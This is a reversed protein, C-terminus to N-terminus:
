GGMMLFIKKYSSINSMNTWSTGNYYLVDGEAPSALSVDSLDDISQGTGVESGNYWLKGNKGYLVNTTKPPDLSQSSFTIGENFNPSELGVKIGNPFVVSIVDGTIGNKIVYFDKKKASTQSFSSM